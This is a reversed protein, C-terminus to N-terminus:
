METIDSMLPPSSDKTWLTYHKQELSPSPNEASLRYKSVPTKNYKRTYKSFIQSGRWKEKLEKVNLVYNLNALPFLNILVFAAATVWPYALRRFQSIDCPNNPDHGNQECTFYRLLSGISLESNRTSLTFSTLAIVVLM